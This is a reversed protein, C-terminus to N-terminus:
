LIIYGRASVRLRQPTPRSAYLQMQYDPPPPNWATRIALYPPTRALHTFPPTDVRVATIAPPLRRPAYPQSAGSFVYPWASYSWDPQNIAVGQLKAALPGGTASIPIDISQGPIASSRRKPGYPQAAGIFSYPWAPPQAMAVITAKIAVPGGFTYPPENVSFGPVGPSQLRWEFPQRRGMFTYTWPDPQWLTTIVIQRVSRGPHIAPPQDVPSAAISPSLRAPAHPQRGGMFPPPPHYYIGM